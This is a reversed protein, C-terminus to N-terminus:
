AARRAARMEDLLRHYREQLTTLELHQRHLQDLAARLLERYSAALDVVALEEAALDHLAVDRHDGTM